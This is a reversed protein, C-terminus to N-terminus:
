TVLSFPVFFSPTSQSCCNGRVFGCIMLFYYESFNYDVSWKIHATRWIRVLYNVIHTCSTCYTSKPVFFSARLALHTCRCCLVIVFATCVRVSLFFSVFSSFCYLFIIGICHVFIYGLFHATRYAHVHLVSVLDICHVCSKSFFISWGPAVPGLWDRLLDAGVSPSDNQTVTCPAPWVHAWLDSLM